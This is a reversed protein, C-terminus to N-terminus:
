RLATDNNTAMTSITDLCTVTDNADINDLKIMCMVSNLFSTFNVNEKATLLSGKEKSYGAFITRCSLFWWHEIAVNLEDVYFETSVLSAVVPARNVGPAGALLGLIKVGRTLSGGPTWPWGSLGEAHPQQMCLTPCGDHLACGSDSLSAYDDSTNSLDSQRSPNCQWPLPLQDGASAGLPSTAPSRSESSRSGGSRCRGIKEWRVSLSKVDTLRLLFDTLRLM